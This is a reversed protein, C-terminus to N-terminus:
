NNLGRGAGALGRQQNIGMRAALGRVFDMQDFTQLGSSPDGSLLRAAITERSAQPNDQYPTGMLGRIQQPTLKFDPRQSQMEERMKLRAMENLVVSEREQPKLDIFPNLVVRGDETAMGAVGPNVKFYEIEQAHPQRVAGGGFMSPRDFMSPM